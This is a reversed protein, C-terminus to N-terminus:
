SFPRHFPPVHITSNPLLDLTGQFPKVKRHPPPSSATGVTLGHNPNGVGFRSSLSGTEVSPGCRPRISVPSTSIHECPKLSSSPPAIPPKTRVRAECNSNVDALTITTRPPTCPPHPPGLLVLLTSDMLPFV